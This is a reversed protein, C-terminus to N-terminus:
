QNDTENGNKLRNIMADALKIAEVCISDNWSAHWAESDKIMDMEIAKNTIKAKIEQLQPLAAKALEYRRQEWDIEKKKAM